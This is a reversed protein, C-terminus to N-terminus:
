VFPDTQSEPLDDLSDLRRAPAPTEDVIETEDGDPLPLLELFANSSWDVTTRGEDTRNMFIQDARAHFLEGEREQWVEPQRGRDRLRGLTIRGTSLLYILETCSGDVDELSVLVAEGTALLRDSEQSYELGECDLSLDPSDVEVNGRATMAGQSSAYRLSECRLDMRQGLGPILVSAEGSSAQDGADTQTETSRWRVNGELSFTPEGEEDRQITISDAWFTSTTEEGAQIIFPQQDAEGRRELTMDGSEAAYTLHTSVGTLDAIEIQVRDGTAVMTGAEDDHRLDDCDLDFADSRILVNGWAHAVGEEFRLHDCDFQAGPGLGPFMAAPLGRPQSPAAPLPAALAVLAATLAFLSRM